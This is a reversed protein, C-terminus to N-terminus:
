MFDSNVIFERVITVITKGILHIYEVDTIKYITCISQLLPSSITLTSEEIIDELTPINEKEDGSSSFKVIIYGMCQLHLYDDVIESEIAKKTILKVTDETPFM